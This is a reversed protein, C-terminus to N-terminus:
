SEAEMSSMLIDIKAQIDQRVIEIIGLEFVLGILQQNSYITTVVRGIEIAEQPIWRYTEIWAKIDRQLRHAASKSITKGTRATIEEALDHCTMSRGHEMAWRLTEAPLKKFLSPRVM